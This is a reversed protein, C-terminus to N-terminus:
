IVKCNNLDVEVFIAENKKADIIRRKLEQKRDTENEDVMQDFADVFRTYFEGEKTMARFKEDEKLGIAFENRDKNTYICILSKQGMSTLIIINWNHKNLKRM